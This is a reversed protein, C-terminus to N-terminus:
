RQLGSFQERDVGAAGFSRAATRPSLRGGNVVINGYARVTGPHRLAGTTSRSTAPLVFTGSPFFSRSALDINGSFDLDAQLTDDFVKALRDNKEGPTASRFQPIALIVKKPGVLNVGGEIRDQPASVGQICLLFVITATTLSVRTNL